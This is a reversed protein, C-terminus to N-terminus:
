ASSSDEDKVKGTFPADYVLKRVPYNIEIGEESFQRHLRKILENTVIFSGIRDKAQVFVWFGINSDGFTDFGFWPEMDKVAEPLDQIVSNAVKLSVQEVKDLDSDYSVGCTILINMAPEPAQYNVIINDALTANPIIVLNNLWTRIKTTRWGVDIVYGQPGGQIEIYDGTRISGDSLVYTGAFFNGLTSQAALAVALGTIGLGGLVPSISFGLTDLIILVTIGYIVVRFFRRAIPLLRDDFTTETRPALVEIYWNIGSTGIIAVTRGLVMVVFVTWWRRIEGQWEELEPLISLGLLFGVSLLVLSASDGIASNMQILPGGVRGDKRRGLMVKLVLRLVLAGLAFALLIAVSLLPRFYANEVISEYTM